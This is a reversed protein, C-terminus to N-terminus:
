RDGPERVDLDVARLDPAADPLQEGRVSVLKGPVSGAEWLHALARLCPQYQSYAALDGDALPVLSYRLNAQLREALIPGYTEFWRDRPTSILGAPSDPVELSQESLYMTERGSGVM